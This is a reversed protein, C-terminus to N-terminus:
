ERIKRVPFEVPYILNDELIVAVSNRMIVAHIGDDALPDDLRLAAYFSDFVSKRFIIINYRATKTKLSGTIIFYLLSSLPM